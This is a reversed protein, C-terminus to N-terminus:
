VGLRRACQKEKIPMLSDTSRQVCVLDGVIFSGAVPEGRAASRAQESLEAVLGIRSMQGSLSQFAFTLVLLVAPLAIVLEATVTGAERARKNTWMLWVYSFHSCVM